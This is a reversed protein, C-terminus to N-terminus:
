ATHPGRAASMDVQPDGVASAEVVVSSAPVSSAPVSSWSATLRRLRCLASSPQSSAGARDALIALPGSVPDRPGPPLLPIGAGQGVPVAPGLPLAPLDQQQAPPGLMISGDHSGYGATTQQGAAAQAIRVRTSASMVAPPIVAPPIVASPIVAPPVPPLSLAPQDVASRETVLDLVYGGGTGLVVRPQALTVLPRRREPEAPVPRGTAAAAAAAPPQRPLSVAPADGVRRLPLTLVDQDTAPVDQDTALVDQDTALVDQDTALVNEDTASVNEFATVRLAPQQRAALEAPAPCSTEGALENLTDIRSRLVNLAQHADALNRHLEDMSGRLQEREDRWQWRERRSRQRLSRSQLREVALGVAATGAGAAAIDARQLLYGSGAAGAASILAGAPVFAVVANVATPAWRRV